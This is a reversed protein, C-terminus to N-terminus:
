KITDSILDLVENALSPRQGCSSLGEEDARVWKGGERGKEKREGEKEREREGEKEGKREERM